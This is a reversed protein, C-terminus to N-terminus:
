ARSQQYTVTCSGSVEETKPIVIDFRHEFGSKGQIRVNEKYHIRSHELWGVVEEGFFSRKSPSALYYLDDIAIMAQLLNHKHLGFDNFKANVQLARNEMSVGLGNITMNLLYQRKPSEM